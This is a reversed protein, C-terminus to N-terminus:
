GPPQTRALVAVHVRRAGARELARTCVGATAGTTLVDDVLLVTKRALALGSRTEFLGEVNRRRENADLSFQPRSARAQRLALPDHEMRLKAALAASLMRVLNLGRTRQDWWFMPVPVVLAADEPFDERRLGRVFAAALRDAATRDRRFKAARIQARVTTEYTFIARASRFHLTQTRCWTCRTEVEVHPGLRIACRPCRAERKPTLAEGCAACLRNAPEGPEAGCAECRTGFM